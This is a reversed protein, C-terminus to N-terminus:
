GAIVESNGEINQVYDRTGALHGTALTSLKPSQLNESVNKVDFMIDPREAVLWRLMGVINRYHRHSAKDLDEDWVEKEWQATPKMANTGPTPSSVGQDLGTKELLRDHFEPDTATNTM